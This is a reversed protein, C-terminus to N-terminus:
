HFMKADEIISIYLKVFTHRQLPAETVFDILVSCSWSRTDLTMTIIYVHVISFVCNICHYFHVGHFGHVAIYVTFCLRGSRVRRKKEIRCRNLRMIACMFINIRLFVYDYTNYTDLIVLCNNKPICFQTPFDEKSTNECRLM